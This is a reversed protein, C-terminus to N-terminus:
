WRGRRLDDPKNINLMLEATDVGWLLLLIRQCTVAASCIGAQLPSIGSELRLWSLPYGSTRSPTVWDIWAFAPIEVEIIQRASGKWDKGFEDNVTFEIRYVRLNQSRRLILWQLSEKTTSDISHLDRIQVPQLFSPLFPIFSLSFFAPVVKHSALIRGLIILWESCGSTAIQLPLHSM